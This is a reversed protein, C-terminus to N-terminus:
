CNRPRMSATLVFAVDVPGREAAVEALSARVPRGRVEPRLYVRVDQPQVLGQVVPRHLPPSMGAVVEQREQGRRLEVALQHRDVLHAAIREQHQGAADIGGGGQQAVGENM